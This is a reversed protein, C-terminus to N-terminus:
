GKVFPCKFGLLGEKLADLTCAFMFARTGKSKQMIEDPPMHYLISTYKLISAM